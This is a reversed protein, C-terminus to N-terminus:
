PRTGGRDLPGATGALGDALQALLRVITEREAETWSRTITELVRSWTDWIAKMSTAGDETLELSAARGDTPHPVRRVLGLAVLDSVQRSLTTRGTNMEVALESLGIPQSEAIHTLTAVLHEPIHVGADHSIRGHLAATRAANVLSYLHPVMAAPWTDRPRGPSALRGKAARSGDARRDLVGDM